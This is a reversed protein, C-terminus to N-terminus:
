FRPCGQNARWVLGLNFGVSYSGLGIAPTYSDSGAEEVGELFGRNFENAQGTTRPFLIASIVTAADTPSEVMKLQKVDYKTM